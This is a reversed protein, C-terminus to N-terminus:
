RQLLLAVPGVLAATATAAAQDSRVALTVREGEIRVVQARRAVPEPQGLGDDRGAGDLVLGGPAGAVVDVHDGTEVPPRLPGTSVVVGVTGGPLASAVAGRERRDMLAETLVQGETLAM